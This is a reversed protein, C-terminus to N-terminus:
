CGFNETHTHIYRETHICGIKREDASNNKDWAWMEGNMHAAKEDCRCTVALDDLHLWQQMSWTDMLALAFALAFTLRECCVAMALQMHISVDCCCPTVLATCLSHLWLVFQLLQCHMRSCCHLICYPTVVATYHLWWQRYICQVAPHSWRPIATDM